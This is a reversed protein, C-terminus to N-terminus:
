CLVLHFIFWNKMSLFGQKKFPKKIVKTATKLYSCNKKNEGYFSIKPLNQQIFYDTADFAAKINDNDVLSVFPHLQRESFSSPSSTKSRLNLSPIMRTPITFILGDVRNGYIPKKLNDLRREENRDRVSKSPMIMTQRSRPLGRLVLQSSLSDLLSSTM